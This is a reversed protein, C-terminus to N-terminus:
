SQIMREKRFGEIHKRGWVSMEPGWIEEWPSLTRLAFSSGMVCWEVLNIYCIDGGKGTNWNWHSGLSVHPFPCSQIKLALQLTITTEQGKRTGQLICPGTRKWSVGWIRACIVYAQAAWVWTLPLPTTAGGKVKHGEVSTSTKGKQVYKRCPM